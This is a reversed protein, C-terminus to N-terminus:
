WVIAGQIVLSVYALLPSVGNIPNHRCKSAHGSCICQGGITIDRISYFFRNAISRDIRSRDASLARIKQLRLRIYRARTFNALEPSTTNVGPRGRVISTHIQFYFYVHVCACIIYKTSVDGIFSVM